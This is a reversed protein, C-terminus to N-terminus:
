PKLCNEIIFACQEDKTLPGGTYGQYNIKKIIGDKLIFTAECSYLIGGLDGGSGSYTLFELNDIKEQKVPVGACILLDEKSMGILESKARSAMEARHFVCGSLLFSILVILLLKKM